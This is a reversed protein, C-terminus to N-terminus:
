SNKIIDIAIKGTKIKKGLVSNTELKANVNISIQEGKGESQANNCQRNEREKQRLM